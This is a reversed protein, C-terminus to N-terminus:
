AGEPSPSTIAIDGLDIDDDTTVVFVRDDYGPKMVRVAFKRDDPLGVVAFEGFEDSVAGSVSDDILDTVRVDAGMVVDDTVPDFVSGAVVRRPLGTWRVRPRVDLEPHLAETADAAVAAAFVPDATDGFRIADHPCIEACRPLLGEDVRHACGTCKQALARETDVYVVDYPCAEACLGCGNCREPSIWVLGDDRRLIAEEPCAKMCPANECHQCMMPLHEVRVRPTRGRERTKVDIWFQGTDPQSVSWPLQDRGVHEDKCAIVCLGCGSCDSAAILFRKDSM